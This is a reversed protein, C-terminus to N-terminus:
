QLKFSLACNMGNGNNITTSYTGTITDYCSVSNGGSLPPHSVSASSDVAQVNGSQPLGDDIKNDITYAQSVTIGVTATASSYIMSSIQSLGFYNIGNQSWVHIFNGNGIKAIPFWLNISTGTLTTGPDGAPGLIGSPNFSGDILNINHGNAYTLDNWFLVPEGTAICTGCNSNAAYANLVGEILGNGDGAGAYGDTAGGTGRPAFGFQSAIDQTMDGPLANYKSRFTNVAQNYKEIQTIQARVYAAQVLSQGVLVGGV